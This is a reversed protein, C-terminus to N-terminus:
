SFLIIQRQVNVIAVEHNSCSPVQFQLNPILMKDMGKLIIDPMLLQIIMQEPVTPRDCTALMLNCQSDVQSRPQCIWEVEPNTVDQLLDYNDFDSFTITLTASILPNTLYYQNMM